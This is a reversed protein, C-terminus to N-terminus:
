SMVCRARASLGLEAALDQAAETAPTSFDLGVVQAGQQALTLSDLGFHCQLHLVQLGSVPGLVDTVIPDLAATGARLPAQDYHARSRLHVAVREDWNAQNATRWAPETM